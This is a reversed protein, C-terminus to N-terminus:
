KPVMLIQSWETAESPRIIDLALMEELIKRMVRAKQHTIPRAAQRNRKVKWKPLDVTLKMPPVMAPQPNLTISFIDRFEEALERARAVLEPPGEIRILDLIDGNYESHYSTEEESDDEFLSESEPADESDFIERASVRMAAGRNGELPSYGLSNKGPNVVCQHDSLPSLHPYVVNIQHISTAEGLDELEVPGETPQRDDQSIHLLKHKMIIHRGIILDIHLKPLFKITIPIDKKLNDKNVCLIVRLSGLCSVCDGFASCVVNTCQDPHVGADRFKKLLSASGYNGQMAGTDFLANTAINFHQYNIVVPNWVACFQKASKTPNDDTILYIMKSKSRKHKSKSGKHSESPPRFDAPRGADINEQVRKRYELLGYPAGYKRGPESDVWQILPNSNFFPTGRHNCDKYVHNFWGCGQCRPRDEKSAPAPASAAPVESRPKKTAQQSGESREKESSRSSSPYAKTNSSYAQTSSASAKAIVRSASPPFIMGDLKAEDIRNQVVIGCDLVADLFDEFSDFFPTNVKFSRHYRKKLERLVSFKPSRSSIDKIDGFALLCTRMADGTESPRLPGGKIAEADSIITRVQSLWQLLGNAGEGNFDLPVQALRTLFPTLRKDEKLLMHPCYRKIAGCFASNPWEAWRLRFPEPVNFRRFYSLMTDRVGKHLLSHWRADDVRAGLANRAELSELFRTVSEPAFDTLSPVPLNGDSRTSRRSAEPQTLTALKACWKEFSVEEAEQQAIAAREAKGDLYRHYASQEDAPIKEDSEFLAVQEDTFDEMEVTPTVGEPEFPNEKSEEDVTDDIGNDDVSADDESSADVAQGASASAAKRTRTKKHSRPASQAEGGEHVSDSNAKRVRQEKSGRPAVAAADERGPVSTSNSKRVGREQSRGRQPQKSSM